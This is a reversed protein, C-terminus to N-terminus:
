VIGILYDYFLMSKISCVCKYRNFVIDILIFELIYKLNGGRKRDREKGRERMFIIEKM